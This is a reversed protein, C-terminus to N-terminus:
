HGGMSMVLHATEYAVVDQMRYRVLRGVKIHSCGIGKGRNAQLTKISMQWRDALQTETLHITPTQQGLQEACNEINLM